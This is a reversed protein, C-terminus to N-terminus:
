HESVLFFVRPSFNAHMHIERGEIVRTEVRSRTGLTFSLRSDRYAILDM